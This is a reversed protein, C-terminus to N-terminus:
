RSFPSRGSGGDFIPRGQAIKPNRQAGGSYASAARDISRRGGEAGAPPSASFSRSGSEGTSPAAARAGGSAGRPPASSPSFPASAANAPLGASPTRGAQSGRGQRTMAVSGSEPRQSQAQGSGASRSTTRGADQRRDEGRRTQTAGPARREGDGDSRRGESRDRVRSQVDAAGPLRGEGESSRRQTWESGARAVDTRSESGRARQSASRRDEGSRARDAGGALRETRGPTRADRGSPLREARQARPGSSHRPPALDRHPTSSARSRAYKRELSAHRYTVGRRHKPEHHWRQIGVQTVHVNHSHLRVRHPHRHQHVNVIVVHRRHWDFTSFFFGLSVHVGSGWFFGSGAYVYVPPPAWYVPPYAPWWWAGYIVTPRYYPVYVVRPSAPEIIIVEPERHVRIHEVTHITGAAYARERLAQVSDMVQAEQALVADGLRRTWELDESMRALVQPFAVLAKVSPDWDMHEVAAVAEEGELQPNNRSWRAAEVVELPYTASMLIQALLADPYLAIPALMQDLEAESFLPEHEREQAAVPTAILLVLLAVAFLRPSVKM